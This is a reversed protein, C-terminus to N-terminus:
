CDWHIAPKVLNYATTRKMDRNKDTCILEVFYEDDHCEVISKLANVLRDDAVDINFIVLSKKDSSGVVKIWDVEFEYFYLGLNEDYKVVPTGRLDELTQLKVYVVNYDLANAIDEIFPIAGDGMVLFDQKHDLCQMLEYKSVPLNDIWEQTFQDSTM